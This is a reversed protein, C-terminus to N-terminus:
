KQQDDGKWKGTKKLLEIMKPSPGIHEIKKIDDDNRTKVEYHILSDIFDEFTLAVVYNDIGPSSEHHWYNITYETENKFQFGILDGSEGEAFPIFKNPLQDSYMNLNSEISRNEKQWTLFRGVPVMNEDVTINPIRNIGKSMVSSVFGFYGLKTIIATYESPLKTNYKSHIYDIMEGSDAASITKYGLAEIKEEIRSM